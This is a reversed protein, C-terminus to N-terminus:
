GGGRGPPLPWARGDDPIRLTRQFTVRTAPVSPLEPDWVLLEDEEVQARLV